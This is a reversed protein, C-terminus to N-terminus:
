ATQMGRGHSAMDREVLLRLYQSKNRLGAKHSMDDLYDRMAAPAKFQLQVTPDRRESVRPRGLLLDVADNVNSAGTIRMLDRDAERQAEAGSTEEAASDDWVWGEMQDNDMIGEKL